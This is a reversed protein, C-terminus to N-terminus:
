AGAPESTAYVVHGDDLWAVAPAIEGARFSQAIQSAPPSAIQSGSTAVVEIAAETRNDRWRVFALRRGDRSWAVATVAARDGIALVSRRASAGAGPLSRAAVYDETIPKIEIGHRTAYALEDGRPSVAVPARDHAKLAVRLPGDGVVVTSWWDNR